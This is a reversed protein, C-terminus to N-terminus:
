EKSYRRRNKRNAQAVYNANIEVDLLASALLATEKNKARTTSVCGYERGSTLYHEIWHAVGRVVFPKMEECRNDALVWEDFSSGAQLHEASDRLWDALSLLDGRSDTVLLKPQEGSYKPFFRSAEPDSDIAVALGRMREALDSRRRDAEPKTEKMRQKHIDPLKAVRELLGVWWADTIGVKKLRDEAEVVRPDSQLKALNTM